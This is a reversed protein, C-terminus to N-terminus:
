GKSLNRFICVINRNPPIGIGTTEFSPRNSLGCTLSKATRTDMYAGLFHSLCAGTSENLLRRSPSTTSIRMTERSSILCDPHHWSADQPERERSNIDSWERLNPWPICQTAGRSVGSNFHIEEDGLVVPYFSGIPSRRFSGCCVLYPCFLGLLKRRGGAVSTIWLIHHILHTSLSGRKQRSVYALGTSFLTKM